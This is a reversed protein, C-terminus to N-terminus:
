RAKRTKYEIWKVRLGYLIPVLIYPVQAYDIYFYAVIISLFALLPEMWRDQSIEDAIKVDIHEKMLRDNWSAYKWSSYALAGIIIVNISYMAIAAFFDPFATAFSNSFPLLAVFALMLLDIWMYITDAGKMLRTTATHKLWYVALLIFTSLFIGLIPLQKSFASLLQNNSKIDRAEPLDIALLLMTMSTAFIIDSLRNIRFLWNKSIIAPEKGKKPFM